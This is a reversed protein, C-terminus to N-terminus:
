IAEVTIPISGNAREWQTLATVIQDGVQNGDTGLGANVTLNVVAGEAGTYTAGPILSDALAGGVDPVFQMGKAISGGPREKSWELWQGGQSGITAQQGPVNWASSSGPLAEPWQDAAQQGVETLRRLSNTRRSSSKSSEGGDFPNMWGPV